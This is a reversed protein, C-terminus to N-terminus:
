HMCLVDFTQILTSLKIPNYLQIYQIALVTRPQIHQPLGLFPLSIGM